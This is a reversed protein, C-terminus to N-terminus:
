TGDEERRAIALRLMEQDLERQKEIRKREEEQQELSMRKPKANIMNRMIDPYDAEVYWPKTGYRMLKNRDGAILRCLAYVHKDIPPDLGMEDMKGNVMEAMIGKITEVWRDEVKGSMVRGASEMANKIIKTAERAMGDFIPNDLNGGGPKRYKGQYGYYRENPEELPKTSVDKPIGNYGQYLKWNCITIFKGRPLNTVEISENLEMRKIAERVQHYPAGVAEALSATSGVWQGPELNYAKGAFEVVEPEYASMMMLAILLEFDPHRALWGDRYMKRFVKIYTLDMDRKTETM